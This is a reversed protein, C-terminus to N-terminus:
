HSLSTQNSATISFGFRKKLTALSSQIQSLKFLSTSFINETHPKQQFKTLQVSLSKIMHNNLMLDNLLTEAMSFLTVMSITPELLTTQRMSLSEDEYYIKLSITRTLLYEANLKTCANELLTHLNAKLHDRDLTSFPLNISRTISKRQGPANVPRHDIGNALQWLWRGNAGFYNMLIRPSLGALDGITKIGTKKLIQTTRRGVTPLKAISITNLFRKEQGWPVYVLGNPKNIQSAIKACIKNSAIGVSATMELEHHLVSKIQYAIKEPSIWREAFDSIDLYAEDLAVPEINNSFRSLIRFFEQSFNKYHGHSANLYVAEPAHRYAETITMYTSVGLQRAQYNASAVVKSSDSNGEVVIAQGRLHPSIAQEVSTLFSDLSVHLVTKFKPVKKM